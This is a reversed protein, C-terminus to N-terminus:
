PFDDFADPDEVLAFLFTQVEHNPERGYLIFEVLIVLCLRIADQEELKLFDPGEFLKLLDLLTVVTQLHPFIRQVLPTPANELDELNYAGFQLGTMLCFEVRGFNCYYDGVNFRLMHSQNHIEENVEEQKLLMGHVLNPEQDLYPVDLWDGFCHNRFMRVVVDRGYMTRFTKLLGFRSRITQKM